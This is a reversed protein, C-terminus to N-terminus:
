QKADYAKNSEEMRGNEVLAELKNKVASLSQGIAWIRERQVAEDANSSLFQAHLDWMIQDIAEKFADNALVDRAQKGLIIAHERAQDKDM